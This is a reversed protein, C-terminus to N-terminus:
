FTKSRETVFTPKSFGSFDKSDFDPYYGNIHVKNKDFEFIEDYKKNRRDKYNKHSAPGAEAYKHQAITRIQIEAFVRISPNSKQVLEFTLHFSQYGSKKPNSIYDKGLNSLRPIIIDPNPILVEPYEEPNFATKTIAKDAISLNVYLPFKEDTNLISFFELIEQVIIYEMRLVEQTENELLIIRLAPLDKIEPSLGDSIREYRKYLESLFSKFRQSTCFHLEPHKENILKFCQSSVISMMRMYEHAAKRIQASEKLQSAMQLLLFDEAGFNTSIKNSFTEMIEPVSNANYLAERFLNGLIEKNAM